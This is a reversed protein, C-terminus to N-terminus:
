FVSIQSLQTPGGFIEFFKKLAASFVRIKPYSLQAVLIKFIAKVLRKLTRHSLTVTFCDTIIKEHSNSWDDTNIFGARM